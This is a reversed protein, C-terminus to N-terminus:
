HHATDRSTAPVGPYGEGASRLKEDPRDEAVISVDAVAVGLEAAAINRTGLHQALDVVRDGRHLRAHALDALGAEGPGKGLRDAADAGGGTREEGMEGGM